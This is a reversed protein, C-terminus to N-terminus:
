PIMSRARSAPSAFPAWLTVSRNRVMVGAASKECSEMSIYELHEGALVLEEGAGLKVELVLGHRSRAQAAAILEGGLLRPRHARLAAGSVTRSSGSAGM